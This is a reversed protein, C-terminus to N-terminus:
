QPPTEVQNYPTGNSTTGHTASAGGASVTTAGSMDDHAFTFGAIRTVYIKGGSVLNLEENKLERMETM